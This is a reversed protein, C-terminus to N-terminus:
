KQKQQLKRIENRHSELIEVKTHQADFIPTIESREQLEGEDTNCTNLGNSPSYFSRCSEKTNAPIQFGDKGIFGDEDTLKRPKNCIEIEKYNSM